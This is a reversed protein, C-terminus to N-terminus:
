RREWLTFAGYSGTAVFSAEVADRAQDSLFTRGLIGTDDEALVAADSVAIEKILQAQVEGAARARWVDDFAARIGIDALDAYRDVPAPCEAEVLDTLKDAAIALSATDFWVCRHSAAFARLPALDPPRPVVNHVATLSLGALMLVLAPNVAYRARGRGPEPVLRHLAAATAIAITPAALAFRHPAYAPSAAVMLCQLGMLLVILQTEPQWWAILAVAIVTVVVCTALMIDIAMPLEYGGLRVLDSFRQLHQVMGIDGSRDLQGRGVQEVFERPGALASPVVLAGATVAASALWGAATRWGRIVLLYGAILAIEPGARLAVAFATGLLMGSAAVRGPHVPERGHGLLLLGGLLTIGLVPEFELTREASSPLRWVAYCLGGALAWAPAYRRLHAAVLVANVAGTTVVALRAAAIAVSDGAVGALAAFPTLLLTLGPPHGLVIDRYPLRGHVLNVAAAYLPGDEYGLVATLSGTRIMPGLRVAYAVIFIMLLAPHGTTDLPRLRHWGRTSPTAAAAPPATM